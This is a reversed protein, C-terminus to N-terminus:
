VPRTYRGDDAMEFMQLAVWCVFLDTFSVVAPVASELLAVHACRAVNKTTHYTDLTSWSLLTSSYVYNYSREPLIVDRM